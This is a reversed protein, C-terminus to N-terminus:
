FKLKKTHIELPVHLFITWRHFYFDSLLFHVFKLKLSSVYSPVMETRHPLPFLLLFTEGACLQSDANPSRETIVEQELKGQWGTSARSAWLWTLDRKWAIEYTGKRIVWRDNDLSYLTSKQCKKGMRLGVEFLPDNFYDQGSSLAHTEKRICM